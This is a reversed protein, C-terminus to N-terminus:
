GWRKVMVRERSVGDGLVEGLEGSAVFGHRRYLAVAAENGPVVALRLARAGARRAWAEVAGTLLDGVGQGRVRPSVWVSRLEYTADAGPMTLRARWRDEGGHLWDALRAKFAHPAGSLAAPRAQLWVPWDDDSALVRLEVM